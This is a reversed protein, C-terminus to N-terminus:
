GDDDISISISVLRMCRSCDWLKQIHDRESALM